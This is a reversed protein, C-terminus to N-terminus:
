MPYKLNLAAKFNCKLSDNKILLLNIIILKRKPQFGSHDHFGDARLRHATLKHPLIVGKEVFSREM